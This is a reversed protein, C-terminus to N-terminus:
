DADGAAGDPVQAVVDGRRVRGGTVVAATIGGHGRMAQYGGPGLAEEMRSCPHCPGTGELVVEGVRFRLGKLALVPIGAVVLNRRLAAPDVPDDRGLLAAVVELHEAQLVTVQRRSPGRRGARQRDGDLGAGVLVDAGEVDVPPARRAPRLLVHELTGVQPVTGQLEAITRV